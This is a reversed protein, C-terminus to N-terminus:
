DNRDMACDGPLAEVFVGSWIALWSETLCERGSVLVLALAWDQEQELEQEQEQGRDLM